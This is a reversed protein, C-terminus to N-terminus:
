FVKITKPFLGSQPDILIMVADDADIIRKSEGAM